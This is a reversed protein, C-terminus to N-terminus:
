RRETTRGAHAQLGAGIQDRAAIWVPEAGRHGRRRLRARDQKREIGEVELDASRGPDRLLRHDRLHAQLEPAVHGLLDPLPGRRAGMLHGRRERGGHPRLVRAQEVAQDRRPAPVDVPVGELIRAM